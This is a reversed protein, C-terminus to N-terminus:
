DSGIRLNVHLPLVCKVVAKQKYWAMYLTGLQSVARGATSMPWSSFASTPTSLSYSHCVGLLRVEPLLEIAVIDGDLARNMAIRDPIFIAQGLSESAVFGESYNVRSVRLAGQLM